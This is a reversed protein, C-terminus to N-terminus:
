IRIAGNGLAAGQKASLGHSALRQTNLGKGCLKGKTSQEVANGVPHFAHFVTWLVLETISNRASIRQGVLRIEPFRDPM